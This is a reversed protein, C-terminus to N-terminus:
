MRTNISKLQEEEIKNRENIIIQLQKLMTIDVKDIDEPTWGFEKAFLYVIVPEECSSHVVGRRVSM